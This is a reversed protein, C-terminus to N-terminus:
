PIEAKSIHNIIYNKNLFIFSKEYNPQYKEQFNNHIKEKIKQNPTTLQLIFVLQTKRLQYKQDIRKLIM